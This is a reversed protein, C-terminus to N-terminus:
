QVLEGNRLFGHWKQPGNSVISGAGAQCTKGAKNVTLLPPTGHVVWCRHTTEDKMTCNSARSCTDWYGGDPLIVDIHKGDCNTWGAHCEGAAHERVQMSGPGFSAWYGWVTVGTDARRYEREETGGCTCDPSWTCPAHRKCGTPEVLFCKM